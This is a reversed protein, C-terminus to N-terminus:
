LTLQFLSPMWYSKSCISPFNDAPSSASIAFSTILLPLYLFFITFETRNV